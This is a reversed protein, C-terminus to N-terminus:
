NIRDHTFILQYVARQLQLSYAQQVKLQTIPDANAEKFCMVASRLIAFYHSCRIWGMLTCKPPKRQHSLLDALHEYFITAKWQYLVHPSCIGHEIDRVCQGYSQKKDDEHSKYVVPVTALLM